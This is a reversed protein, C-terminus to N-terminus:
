FQALTMLMCQHKCRTKWASTSNVRECVMALPLSPNPLAWELCDCTLGKDAKYLKNNANKSKSNM